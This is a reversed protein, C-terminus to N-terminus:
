ERSRFLLIGAVLSPLCLLWFGYDYRGTAALLASFVLPYSMMGASGFGLVGGTMAAIRGEPALRAVEALLVGHWSIATASYAMAVSTIAVLGWDPQFMGMAAAAAAM